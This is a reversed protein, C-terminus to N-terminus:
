GIVISALLRDPGLSKIYSDNTIGFMRRISSFTQPAYDIFKLIKPNNESGFRRPILEFFYKQYFDIPPQGEVEEYSAAKVSMEIGIMMNLTLNWNSDGFFM